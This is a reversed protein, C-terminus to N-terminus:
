FSVRAGVIALFPIGADGPVEIVSPPTSAPDLVLVTDIQAVNSRNLLNVLDLSVQWRGAWVPPRYMLRGDLRGFTPRRASNMRSFDGFSPQFMPLGAEDRLPVRESRNGDADADGADPVLALQIGHVPTRPLGTAWRGTLALDIQPGVRVTAAATLAHRRDYDAPYTVGYATEHARAFSYSAWGAVRRGSSDRARAVSVEVGRALGAGDNAPVITIAAGRPVFPRLADPVDYSALRALREQDTEVRGVLLRSSRRRYVDVRSFWGAGWRREVGAVLHLARESTLVSARERSLDLFYDAELTKEYGPSQAHWRVAADTRWRRGLDVSGTVRPSMTTERTMSSRDIRIGPQLAARSTVQWRDQVWAGLRVVDRSSDFADPLGLGLRISSANAQQLSRDGAIRWAWTTDLRRIEVGLDLAHRAAAVISVDQRVGATRVVARRELQFQFLGGQGISGMANAGRSNDYSREFAHLEDSLRSSWLVTRSSARRGIVSELTVSAMAHQVVATQGADAGNEVPRSRERTSLWAFTVRQDTRPRWSTRVQLDQSRPLSHGIAGFAAGAFVARRSGVLWSGQARGPLRGEVLVNVDALNVSAAGGLRRAESGERHTVVLLSSLRDGYRVDFAGPSFEVRDITDAHFRSGLGVMALDEAAVSLRFPSEIEIGDVVTLNEDPAGGRVAIRGGLEDTATVGPLAQISQHVSAFGGALTRVEDGSRSVAAPGASALRSERDDVQITETYRPATPAAAADGEAPVSARAPSANPVPRPSARQHSDRVIVLTGGPGPRAVLGHAALLVDLARQDTGPALPGPVRMDPTVVVSSFIIKLGRRQLDALMRDLRQDGAPAPAGSREQAPTGVVCAVVFVAAAVGRVVLM